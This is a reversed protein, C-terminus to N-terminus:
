AASRTAWVTSDALLAPSRPKIGSDPLDGPSPVPLGSWYEQRPFGLSLPAQHAVPWPTVFLRVCSFHSVSWKVEHSEGPPVLPLSGAQWHLLYSICTWDRPGHVSSGSPSCDVPNCLTLCSQLLMAHMYSTEGSLFYQEFHEKGGGEELLLIKRWYKNRSGSQAGLPLEWLIKSGRVGDGAQRRLVPHRPSKLESNDM